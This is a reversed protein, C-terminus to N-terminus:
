ALDRLAKQTIRSEQFDLQLRLPERRYNLGWTALFWLYLVAAIAAADFAIAGFTFIWGHRGRLRAVVVALMVAGAVLLAVDFWAVRSANSARTLSPQIEAYIGRSYMREVTSRSLPTAAIIAAVLILLIKFGGLM